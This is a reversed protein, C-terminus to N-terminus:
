FACTLVMAGGLSSLSLADRCGRLFVPRTPTFSGALRKTQERFPPVLVLSLRAMESGFPVMEISISASSDGIASLLRNRCIRWCCFTASDASVGSITLESCFGSVFSVLKMVFGRCLLLSLCCRTGGTRQCNNSIVLWFGCSVFVFTLVFSFCRGRSPATHQPSLHNPPPSSTAAAGNKTGTTTVM